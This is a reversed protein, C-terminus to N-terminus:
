SDGRGRKHNGSCRLGLQAGYYARTIYESSKKRNEYVSGGIPNPKMKHNIIDYEKL